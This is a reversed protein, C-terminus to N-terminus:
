NYISRNTSYILPYFIRGDFALPQHDNTLHGSGFWFIDSTGEYADELHKGVRDYSTCYQTTWKAVM